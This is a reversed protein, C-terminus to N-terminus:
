ADGQQNGIIVLIGAITIIRLGIRYGIGAPGTRCGVSGQGHCVARIDGDVAADFNGRLVISGVATLVEAAARHLIVAVDDHLAIGLDHQIGARVEVGPAIDTAGGLGLHDRLGTRRDVFLHLNRVVAAAACGALQGFIAVEGEALVINLIHFDLLGDFVACLQNALSRDICIKHLLIHHVEHAFTRHEGQLRARLCGLIIINGGVAQDHIHFTIEGKVCNGQHALICLVKNQGHLLVQGDIQLGTGIGGNVLVDHQLGATDNVDLFTGRQGQRGSSLGVQHIGRVPAGIAEARLQLGDGIHGSQALCGALTSGAVHGIGLHIHVAGQDNVARNERGGIVCANHGCPFGANDFEIRSRNLACADLLTCGIRRGAKHIDLHVGDQQGVTVAGSHVGAAGLGAGHVDVTCGMILPIIAATHGIGATMGGICIVAVASGIHQAGDAALNGNLTNVVNPVSIRGLALMSTLVIAALLGNCAGVCRAIAIMDAVVAASIGDAFTRVAVDIAVVVTVLTAFLNSTGTYVAVLIVDTIVVASTSHEAGTGIGMSVTIVRIVQTIVAATLLGIFAAMVCVIVAVVLAVFATRVIHSGTAVVIRIVDTIGVTGTGHVAGAVIFVSVFIRIVDTVVAAGLGDAGVGIGGRVPVVDTIVATTRNQLGARAALRHNFLIYLRIETHVAAIIGNHVAGDAAFFQAANGGGNGCLDRHCHNALGLKFRQFLGDCGSGRAVSDGQLLIHGQGFFQDNLGALLDGQIQVALSQGGISHVVVVINNHLAIQGQFVAVDNHGTPITDADGALQGHFAAAVSHCAIVVVQDAVPTRDDDVAAFKGALVAAHVIEGASNGDGATLEGSSLEIGGAFIRGCHHKTFAANGDAAAAEGVINSLVTNIAEMGHIGVVITYVGVASM